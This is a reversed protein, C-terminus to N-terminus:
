RRIKDPEPTPVNIQKPLSPLPNNNMGTEILIKIEVLNPLAEIDNNAGNLKNDVSQQQNQGDTAHVSEHGAVAAIRQDNNTTNNQYAQSKTASSNKTDNMYQNITGEYIVIDSKTITAKGTKSNINYSNQAEGLKYGNSGNPYSTVKTDSSINLTISHSATVMENFQAMGTETTMMANGIRKVDATANSSWGKNASYTIPKGTADVIVNGDPDIFRIPNNATYAFPTIFVYKEAKNDICHWRGISPDYFRAGYDYWNFKFM